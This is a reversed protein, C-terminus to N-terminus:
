LGLGFNRPVITLTQRRRGFDVASASNLSQAYESRAKPTRTTIDVRLVAPTYRFWLPISVNNISNYTARTAIQANANALIIGWGTGPDSAADVTSGTRAWGSGGDLSFDVRFGIVNESIVSKPASTWDAPGSNPYPLEQSVLCPIQVNSSPDLNMPQVSYRMLRFPRIFMVPAGSVHSKSFGPSVGLGAGSTATFSSNVTITNNAISSIVAGEMNPDMILIIDGPSLDNSLSGVLPTNVICSTAYAGSFEIGLIQSSLTTSIPSPRDLVFRLDDLVYDDYAYDKNGNRGLTINQYGTSSTPDASQFTISNNPLIQFVPTTAIDIYSPAPREPFYNGMSELDDTVMSIAWRNTRQASIIENTTQFNQVSSAFVRLMGAMLFSMFALAILMEVLSFGQVRGGIRIQRHSHRLRM